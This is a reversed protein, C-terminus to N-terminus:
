FELIKLIRVLRSNLVLKKEPVKTKRWLRLRFYKVKALIKAYCESFKKWAFSDHYDSSDSNALIKIKDENETGIKETFVTNIEELLPKLSVKFSKRSYEQLYSNTEIKVECYQNNSSKNQAISKYEVGYEIEHKEKVLLEIEEM